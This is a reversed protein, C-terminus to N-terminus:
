QILNRIIMIIVRYLFIKWRFIRTVVRLIIVIRVIKSNNGPPRSDKVAIKARNNAVIIAEIIIIWVVM